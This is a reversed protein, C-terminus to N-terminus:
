LESLAVNLHETLFGVLIRVLVGADEGTPHDGKSVGQRNMRAFLLHALFFQSLM